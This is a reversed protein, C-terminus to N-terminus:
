APGLSDDMPLGLEACLPIVHRDRTPADFQQVRVVGSASIYRGDALGFHQALGAAVVGAAEFLGAPSARVSELDVTHEAVVAEPTPQLRTPSWSPDHCHVPLGPSEPAFFCVRLQALGGTSAHVESFEAAADLAEVIHGVAHDLFFAPNGSSPGDIEFALHTSGDTHFALRVGTPVSTADRGELVVRGPGITVDSIGSGPIHPNLRTDARQIWWQEIRTKAMADIPFDGASDPTTTITLWRRRRLASRAEDDLVDLRAAVERGGSFRERYLDAVQAESLWDTHRGVRRAYKLADNDNMPVVAHPRRPSQAVLVLICGVGSGQVCQIEVGDLYPEVRSRIWSRLRGEHQELSGTVGVVHSAVGDTEAMGLVLVGGRANALATVDKRFEDQKPRGGQAPQGDYADVKFDLESSEPVQEAVLSQLGAWTTADVVEGTLREVIRAPRRMRGTTM